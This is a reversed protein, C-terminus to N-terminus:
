SLHIAGAKWKPKLWQLKRPERVFMYEAGISQCYTEELLAIIDKLKASGLGVETGANFKSELDKQTLGFNEIALGPTYQRRERVPNTKTFLHGRQRYGQILNLVNIEKLVDESVAETKGPSFRQHFGFDFGEFFKKWGFDVSDPDQLYQQYLSDIAAVDANGIYSFGDM